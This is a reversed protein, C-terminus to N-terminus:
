PNLSERLISSSILLTERGDHIRRSGEGECGEGTPSDRLGPGCAKRCEYGGATNVCRQEPGCPGSLDGDATEDGLCEDIDVCSHGDGSLRYGKQCRCTYHAVTNECTHDCKNLASSSCEDVDSAISRDINPPLSTM